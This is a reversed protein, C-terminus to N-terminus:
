LLTNFLEYFWKLTFGEFVLNNSNKNFSYLVLVIIPLFLFLLVFAIIFNDFFKKKM